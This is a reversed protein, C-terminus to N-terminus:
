WPGNSQGARRVRYARMGEASTLTPPYDVGRIIPVTPAYCQVAANLQDRDVRWGSMRRYAYRSTGDAGPLLDARGADIYYRASRATLSNTAPGSGPTAGRGVGPSRVGPSRVGVCDYRMGSKGTGVRERFIDASVSRHYAVLVGAIALAGVFAGIGRLVGLRSYRVVYADPGFVPEPGTM